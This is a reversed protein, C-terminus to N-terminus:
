RRTASSTSAEQEPRLRPQEESDIIVLGDCSFGKANAYSTNKEVLYGSIIRDGSGTPSSTLFFGSTANNHSSCNRITNNDGSNGIWFGSGTGSSYVEVGDFTCYNSYFVNVCALSSNHVKCDKVTVHDGYQMELGWNASGNTEFGEVQWYSVGSAPSDNKVEIISPTTCLTGASTIVAGYNNQAKVTKVSGSAGSYRVRFGAYTGNTVIITDGNAITDM